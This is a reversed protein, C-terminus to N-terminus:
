YAHVVGHFWGPRGDRYDLRFKSIWEVRRFGASKVMEILCAKNPLWWTDGHSKGIFLAQPLPDEEPQIATAIISLGKTVKRINWLAKIPDTLHLLLSSCFVLDFPGIKEISIDYINILVREVQSNLLKKALNFAEHLYNQLVELPKDIKYDPGFDHEWWNALETAVVMAGRKEFEFAFFGSATGIDLVRKGKLDSPIGYFDLYPRHDYIGPTVIGNGLDITHYWILKNIEEKLQEKALNSVM